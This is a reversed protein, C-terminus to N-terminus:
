SVEFSLIWLAGKIIIINVFGEKSYFILSSRDFTILEKNLYMTFWSFYEVLSFHKPDCFLGQKFFYVLNLESLLLFIFFVNIWPFYYFVFSHKTKLAACLDRPPTKPTLNHLFWNRKGSSSARYRIFLVNTITVSGPSPIEPNFRWSYESRVMEWGVIDVTADKMRERERKADFKLFNLMGM